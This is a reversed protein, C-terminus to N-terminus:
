SEVRVFLASRDGGTEHDFHVASAVRAFTECNPWPPQTADDSLAATREAPNVHIFRGNVPSAFTSVIRGDPLILTLQYM